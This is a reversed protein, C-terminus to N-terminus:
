ASPCGAKERRAGAALEVLVRRCPGLSNLATRYNRGLRILEGLLSPRALISRAIVAAQAVGGEPAAMIAPIERPLSVEVPDCVARIAVFPLGAQAAAEAVSGSEQDVAMVELTAGLFSKDGSTLVPQEVTLVRGSWTAVGQRSLGELAAEVLDPDARWQRGAEVVWEGLIM